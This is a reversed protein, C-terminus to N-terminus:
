YGYHVWHRDLAERELDAKMKRRAREVRDAEAQAPPGFATHPENDIYEQLRAAQRQEFDTLPARVIPPFLLAPPQPETKGCGCLVMVLLVLILMAVKMPKEQKNRKEAKSAREAKEEDELEKRLRVAWEDMRRAIACLAAFRASGERNM